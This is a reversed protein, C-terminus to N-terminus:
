IWLINMVIKRSKMKIKIRKRIIKRSKKISIKIGCHNAGFQGIEM